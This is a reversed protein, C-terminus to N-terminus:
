TVPLCVRVLNIKVLIGFNLCHSWAVSAGSHINSAGLVFCLSLCIGRWDDHDNSSCTQSSPTTGVLLSSHFHKSPCNSIAKSQLWDVVHHHRKYNLLLLLWFGNNSSVNAEWSVQCCGALWCTPQGELISPWPVSSMPASSQMKLNHSHDLQKSEGKSGNNGPTSKPLKHWKFWGPAQGDPTISEPQNFCRCCPMWRRLASLNLVLATNWSPSPRSTAWYPHHFPCSQWGGTSWANSM